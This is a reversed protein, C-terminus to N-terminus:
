MVGTAVPSVDKIALLTFPYAASSTVTVPQLHHEAAEETQLPPAAGIDVTM